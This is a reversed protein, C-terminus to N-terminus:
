LIQAGSLMARLRTKCLFCTAVTKANLRYFPLMRLQCIHSSTLPWQKFTSTRSSVVFTLFVNSSRLFFVISPIRFQPLTRDSKHTFVRECSILPCEFVQSSTAVSLRTGLNGAPSRRKKMPSRLPPDQARIAREAPLARVKEAVANIGEYVSPGSASIHEPPLSPLTRRESSFSSCSEGAGRPCLAAEGYLSLPKSAEVDPRSCKKFDDAVDAAPRPLAKADQGSLDTSNLPLKGLEEGSKDGSEVDCRKRTRTDKKAALNGLSIPLRKEGDERHKMEFDRSSSPPVFDGAVKNTVEAGRREGAKFISSAGINEGGVIDGVYRKEFTRGEAKAMSVERLVVKPPLLSPGGSNKEGEDNREEVFDPAACKRAGYQPSSLPEPPPPLTSASSAVSQADEEDM